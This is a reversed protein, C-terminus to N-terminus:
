QKTFPAFIESFAYKPAQEKTLGHFEPSLNTGGPLDRAISWIGVMGLNRKQADQMVLRADSLYFVEGQVDNVGVMPTTGMMADIEADSKNGYLGKLQAHLNAIASTACKGHINQGETNASQCIANGYDMTMVNVGALEVGKAKADSLVNMGEPTLGTPLIPLTYWIAIDKGESKWKDQVKKVALNRREISAQDAVWTGEIDFDLVRLNLNDVIDYYHQMLDDVNKCSAALPANNAGGISLMVDGGAERLAKIKSYQAYNQMGYATGWTPLCTNADKSVVFALTFHNVNHNKALAALDPITNLTFDVYPAYVHKPWAKKPTGVREKTGTWDVFVRWPNSDSPSVKQVKSQSIYNEGNFRILTDSAYLTEPNFQPANNLEENSYSQTKGLPKWPRSNSGTANQNAVLAPNDSQTWFLAEYAQGDVVVRDGKVYVTSASWAKAPEYKKWPNDGGPVFGWADQDVSTKYHADNYDVISNASYAKSAQFGNAIIVGGNDIECTTPNGYQSMEAATATRVLRWPNNSKEVSTGRPCDESGVWWANQYVNGNFIVHYIESGEQGSWAQLSYDNSSDAPTSPENNDPTPTVPTEPTEPTPDVPTVAGGNNDPKVSCSGPNGYQTIETATAARVYRWPNSADNGKADGPCNSSAVWWANKYVAGNFVVYWTQGGQQKNWAVVSSNSPVTGQAPTASGGNAPTNSAPTNSNSSSSSGSKECSLTNGFQSIEAATATRKLRWPNTADNAKAKGPCNTSSVWWANEYIKGDFIVQYKNGGQQNNWAEMALAPLASCVLGMGIMSKTFINLKM